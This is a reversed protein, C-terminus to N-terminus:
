AHNNQKNTQPQQFEEVDPSKLQRVQLSTRAPDFIKVSFRHLPVM